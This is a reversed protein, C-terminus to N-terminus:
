LNKNIILISIITLIIGLAGKANIKERFGLLAILVILLVSGAAVTPFVIYAPLDELASILFYSAGLNPLGLIIGWLFDNATVRTETIFMPIAIVVAACSFMLSLFLPKESLDVYIEFIKMSLDALGFCLLLGISALVLMISATSSKLGASEGGKIGVSMLAAAVLAGAIGGAQIISPKERFFIISALIPVITSLRMLIVPLAIGRKVIALQFLFFNVAFIFGTVPAFCFAFKSLIFEGSSFYWAIASVVAATVYNGLLITLKEKTRNESLKLILGILTTSLITLFLNIM